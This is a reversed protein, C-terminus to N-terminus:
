LPLSNDIICMYSVDVFCCLHSLTYVFRPNPLINKSNGQEPRVRTMNYHRRILHIWQGSFHRGLFGCSKGGNEEGGVIAHEFEGMRSGFLNYKDM